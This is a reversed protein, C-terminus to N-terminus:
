AHSISGEPGRALTRHMPHGLLLAAQTADRWDRALRVDETYGSGGFIQLCNSVVAPLRAAGREAEAVADAPPAACCLRRWVAAALVREREIDGLMRQILTHEAIIRGGQRRVAAHAVAAAAAADLIGSRIAAAGAEARQWLRRVAQEAAAGQALVTGRRVAGATDTLDALPCAALGLTPVHAAADVPALVLRFDDDISLPLLAHDAVPLGAIGRWVTTDGAIRPWDDPDDYLPLATWGAPLERGFEAALAVALNRALVLAALGAAQAAMAHLSAALMAQGDPGPTTAAIDLLGVAALSEAIRAATDRHGPNAEFRACDDAHRRQWAQVAAVLAEALTWDPAAANV